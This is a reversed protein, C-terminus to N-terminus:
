IHILSLAFVQRGAVIELNQVAPIPVCQRVAVCPYELIACLMAKPQGSACVFKSEVFEREACGIVIDRADSDTNFPLLLSGFVTPQAFRECFVPHWVVACAAVM